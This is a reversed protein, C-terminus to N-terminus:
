KQYVYGDKNIFYNRIQYPKSIDIDPKSDYSYDFYDKIQIKNENMKYDSHSGSSGRICESIRIISQIKLNKIILLLIDIENNELKKYDFNLDNSTITSGKSKIYYFELDKMKIKGLVYFSLRKKLINLEEHKSIGQINFLPLKDFDPKFYFNKTILSSITTDLIKNSSIKLKNQYFFLANKSYFLSSDIKEYKFWYKSKKFNIFSNVGQSFSLNHFVVILVLIKFKNKFVKVSRPTERLGKLLRCKVM